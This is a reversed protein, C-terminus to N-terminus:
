RKGKKAAPFIMRYKANINGTTIDTLKRKLLMKRMGSLREIFIKGDIHDYEHQIIRATIGEIWEEHKKWNEDYYKVLIRPKRMVAEHIDPVSLCGEEFSWEEGEEELIHVNIMVKKMGEAEPYDEKFPEADIIFLRINKNVQPAALGVGNSAYMTEFMNELLQDLDPYDKDIDASMKKLTSHGYAVIPLIM